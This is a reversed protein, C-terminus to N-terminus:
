KLGISLRKKYFLVPYVAYLGELEACNSLVNKQVLNPYNFNCM